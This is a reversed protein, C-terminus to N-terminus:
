IVTEVHSARGDGGRVLRKPAAHAKALNNLADATMAQGQAIGQLAESVQGIVAAIQETRIDEAQVIQAEGGDEEAPKVKLGDATLKERRASKSDELTDSHAKETHDQARKKLNLEEDGRTLTAVATPKEIEEFRREELTIRRQEAEAKAQAAPDVPPGQPQPPNALKQEIAQATQEIVDELKKGNKFTRVGVSLMEFLLPALEPAQPIAAVAQQLFGGVATLLEVTTRKEAEADEFVTSDTEIDIRYSRLKDSRLLEMVEPTIQQGTMEQLVQPEFHEAIIEAKLKYLDRIWKQVARQRKKLRQSGFQAKLQQAGLTENPDSSGRMIDAIGSVEYIGQVLMDRQKYLENLVGAIATVDETQFAAQLGGKQTLSAYNEVPIFENDGARALRKLEKIAQDYVGRRKLAKTLRSIRATIEDLDDAQDRYVHFEPAPICTETDALAVIPEAVPFFDALGYPDPDVRLAKIHGKVIWVRERRQKDWVEWVEAKKLHL